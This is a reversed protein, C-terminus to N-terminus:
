VDLFVRDACAAARSIGLSQLVFTKFGEMGQMKKEVQKEALNGQSNTRMWRNITLRGCSQDVFLTDLIQLRIETRASLLITLLQENALKNETQKPEEEEM